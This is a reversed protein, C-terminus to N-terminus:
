IDLTGLFKKVGLEDMGGEDPDVAEICRTAAIIHRPDKTNIWMRGNLGTATELPFRAGLIPLLFHNPDLLLRCMKLSCHVLFGGKLEGFGEAKRTQADFCELEPEMDKHALSVRAYLLSGVKLNPRNRKTAGEFALGDLSAMHAAGIDVRWNEGSRAIVVGVVSEQAAPIYRRSNGEVWWRSRNASHKLEGARTSVVASEGQNSSLQLLGPGLKLNVHQASIHEGPLVTTM